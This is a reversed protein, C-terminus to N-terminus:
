PVGGIALRRLDRFDGGAIRQPPDRWYGRVEVTYHVTDIETHMEDLLGLRCWSAAEAACLVVRVPAQHWLALAELLTPLARAHLSATADAGGQARRPRSSEGADADLAPLDEPDCDTSDDDPSRGLHEDGDMPSISGQPRCVSSASGLKESGQDMVSAAARKRLRLERNREAHDARGEPSQQHLARAIRKQTARAPVRCADNCYGHGRFCSRCMAFLGACGSCREFCLALQADM